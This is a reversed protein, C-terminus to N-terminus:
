AIISHIAFAWLAEMCSPAVTTQRTGERVSVFQHCRYAIFCSIRNSLPRKFNPPPLFEAGNGDATITILGM